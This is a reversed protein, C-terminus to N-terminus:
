KYIQTRVVWNNCYGTKCRKGIVTERKSNVGEIKYLRSVPRQVMTNTKVVKVHAGRVQNDHGKILGEVEGLRWSSSPINGEEMVVVDGIQVTPHDGKTAVQTHSERLTPRNNIIQEVDYLVTQSEEYTVKATQM